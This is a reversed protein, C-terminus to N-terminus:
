FRICVYKIMWYSIQNIINYRDTQREKTEKQIHVNGKFSTNHSRCTSLWTQEHVHM